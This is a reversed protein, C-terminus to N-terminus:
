AEGRDRRGEQWGTIARGTAIFLEASTEAIVVRGDPLAFCMAVSDKGSEMGGRLTGVEIHADNGLHIIQGDDVGYGLDDTQLPHRERLDRLADFGARDVDLKIILHPM